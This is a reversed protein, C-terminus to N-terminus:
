ATPDGTALFAARTARRAGEDWVGALRSSPDHCPDSAARIRLFVLATGTIAALVLGGIGGLALARRRRVAPDDALASLLAVMSPYRDDPRLSLGRLLVKRVWVPVQTGKPPEAVPKGGLPSTAFPREGYLGEYLAVAFSFQDGRADSPQGILQEPAIYGPTGTVLGVQTLRDSLPRSSTSRLGSSTESSDDSSDPISLESGAAARALGFDAVKVEGNKGLLVNDPKFDRHVLGADHAAALGRGAKMFVDLVERWGRPERLWTGADLGEVLEVALFVQEGIIGADYITVVNPHNLKAMAHAERVLRNRGVTAGQGALMEARLLKLAVRRDLEPDHAVYVVGMGGEALAQVIVYRDVTTGEPLAPTASADPASESVWTDGTDTPAGSTPM